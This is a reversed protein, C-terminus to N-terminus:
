VRNNFCGRFQAIVVDTDGAQLAQESIKCRASFLLTSDLLSARISNSMASLLNESSQWICDDRVQLDELVFMLEKTMGILLPSLQFLPSRWLNARMPKDIQLADDWVLCEEGFMRTYVVDRMLNHHQVVGLLASTLNEGELVSYIKAAISFGDKM